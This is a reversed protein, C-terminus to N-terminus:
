VATISSPPQIVKGMVRYIVNDETTYLQDVSSVRLKLGTVTINSPTPSENGKNIYNFVIDPKEGNSRLDTLHNLKSGDSGIEAKQLVVHTVFSGMFGGAYPVPLKDGSPNSSVYELVDRYGYSIDTDYVILYQYNAGPPNDVSSNVSDFTLFGDLSMSPMRIDQVFLTLTSQVYYRKTGELKRERVWQKNEIIIRHTELSLQAAELLTLIEQEAQEQNTYESNNDSLIRQFVHIEFKVRNKEEVKSRDTAAPGIKDVELSPYHRRNAVQFFPFFEFSLNYPGVNIISLLDTAAPPNAM